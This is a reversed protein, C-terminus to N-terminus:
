NKNIQLSNRLQSQFFLLITGDTNIALNRIFTLIRNTKVNKSKGKVNKRDKANM